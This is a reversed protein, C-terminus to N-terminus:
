SFIAALTGGIIKLILSSGLIIAAGIVSYLLVRRAIALQNANGRASVMMLGAIIICIVVVPLMIKIFAELSKQLFETITASELPNHM